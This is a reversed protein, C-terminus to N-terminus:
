TLDDVTALEKYNKLEAGMLFIGTSETIDYGFSNIISKIPLLIHIFFARRM